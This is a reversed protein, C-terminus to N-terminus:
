KEFTLRTMWDHSKLYQDIAETPLEEGDRIRSTQDTLAM